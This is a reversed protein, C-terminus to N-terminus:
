FVYNLMLFIHCENCLKKEAWNKKERERIECEFYTANMVYSGKEFYTANTVYSGPDVKLHPNCM